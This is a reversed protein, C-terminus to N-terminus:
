GTRARMAAKKARNGCSDMSCWRRSGPRSSDLFLAGCEPNACERIRTIAPSTVLDMADRAVLALTAPIPEDAGWRLRGDGDLTPVPGPLAAVRNIRDRAAPDYAATGGSERAASVLAVVAERLARAAAVDASAASDAVVPGCQGVWAVLADPGSLEEVAHPTGRNRLTRIFDLCIRGSGQRFTPAM